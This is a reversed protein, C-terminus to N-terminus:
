LMMCADFNTETDKNAFFLKKGIKFLLHQMRGSPWDHSHNVLPTATGCGFHLQLMPNAMTWHGAPLANSLARMIIELNNLYLRTHVKESKTWSLDKNHSKKGVFFCITYQNILGDIDFFNVSFYSASMEPGFKQICWVNILKAILIGKYHIMWINEISTTVSAWSFQHCKVPTKKLDM